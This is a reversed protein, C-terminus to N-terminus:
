FNSKASNANPDNKRARDIVDNIKYKNPGHFRGEKNWNTNENFGRKPPLQKVNQHLFSTDATTTFPRKKRKKGDNVVLHTVRREAMLNNFRTKNM